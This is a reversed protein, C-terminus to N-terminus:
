RYDEVKNIYKSKFKIHTHTTCTHVHTKATTHMHPSWLDNKNQQSDAQRERKKCKSTYVPINFSNTGGVM